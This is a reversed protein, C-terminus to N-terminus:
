TSKAPTREIEVEAGNMGNGPKVVMQSGSELYTKYKEKMHEQLAAKDSTIREKMKHIYVRKTVTEKTSPKHGMWYQLTSERVLQLDDIYTAFTHRLDYQQANVKVAATFAAWAQRVTTKTIPGGMSPTYVATREPEVSLVGALITLLPETIPADRYGAKTKPPGVKSQNTGFRYAKNIRIETNILDVDKQLDLVLAEQPRLGAFRMIMAALGYDHLQWGRLMADVEVQELVRHTGDEAAAPNELDTMPNRLIAGNVVAQAFVYDAAQRRKSIASYTMGERTNLYLQLEIPKISGVSREPFAAVLADLHRDHSATTQEARGKNYLPRCREVWDSLSVDMLDISLGADMQRKFTDAADRAERYTKGYFTKRRRKGAKDRGLELMVQYRGDKRKSKRKKETKPEPTETKPFALVRSGQTM